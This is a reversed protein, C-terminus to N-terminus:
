MGLFLLFLISAKISKGMLYMYVYCEKIQIVGLRSKTDVCVQKQKKVAVIHDCSGALPVLTVAHM